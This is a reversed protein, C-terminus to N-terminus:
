SKGQQENFVQGIGHPLEQLYRLARGAGELDM